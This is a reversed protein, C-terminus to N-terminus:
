HKKHEYSRHNVLFELHQRQYGIHSAFFDSPREIGFTIDFCRGLRNSLRKKLMADDANLIAIAPKELTHILSYKEELVGELNKLYELHAPGINTIVGINPKCIQALYRIEGFHNTGLEVVAIDHTRNLGLLSLPLGIHNNQTGQNKLVNYRKSLVWAIMDKTTTKGNSGTVAIVVKGYRQRNFAAIQALARQTDEVELISIKHPLPRYKGKQRIICFAGKKIAEGIFDHGDFSNGKIAIFAEAQKLTRSDISIGKLVTEPHGQVLDGETARILDYVKFM